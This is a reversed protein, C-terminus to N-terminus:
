FDRSLKVGFWRVDNAAKAAHYAALTGFVLGSVVKVTGTTVPGAGLKHCVWDEVPVMVMGAVFFGAAKLGEQQATEVHNVMDQDVTPGLPEDAVALGALLLTSILIKRM